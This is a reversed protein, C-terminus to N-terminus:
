CIAELLGRCGPPTISLIEAVPLLGVGNPLLAKFSSRREPQRLAPADHGADDKAGWCTHKADRM